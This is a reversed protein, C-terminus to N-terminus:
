DVKEVMAMVHDKRYIDPTVFPMMDDIGFLKLKKIDRFTNLINKDDREFSVKGDYNFGNPLCYSNIDYTIVPNCIEGVNVKIDNSLEAFM